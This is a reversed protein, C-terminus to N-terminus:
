DRLILTAYNKMEELFTQEQDNPERGNDSFVVLSGILNNNVDSIPKIWISEIGEDEILKHIESLSNNQNPKLLYVEKESDLETFMKVGELKDIDKSMLGSCSVLSLSDNLNSFMVAKLRYNLEPIMDSLQQSLAKVDKNKILSAFFKRRCQELKISKFERESAQNKDELIEQLNLNMERLSERESELRNISDKLDEEALEQSNIAYRQLMVSALVMPILTGVIASNIDTEQFQETYFEPILDQGFLYAVIVSYSACAIM